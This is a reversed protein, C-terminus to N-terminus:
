PSPLIPLGQHARLATLFTEDFTERLNMAVTDTWFTNNGLRWKQPVDRLSVPYFGQPVKMRYPQQSPYLERVVVEFPLQPVPAVLRGTVTHLLAGGQRDPSVKVFNCLDHERTPDPQVGLRIGQLYSTKTTPFRAPNSCQDWLMPRTVTPLSYLLSTRAVMPQLTPQPKHRLRAELFPHSGPCEPTKTPATASPSAGPAQKTKSALLLKCRLWKKFDAENLAECEKQYETLYHRELLILRDKLRKLDQMERAFDKKDRKWMADKLFRACTRHNWIKCLDIPKCGTADEAHVNAGNEVLVKLCGLLGERAAVHLPTCGNQTQANIAAKKRLLYHICPLVMTKNDRHVVLHLPTQGNNTPQNVPFKYEEVLVQLCALKGRQAAFHIATFGKSDAPIEGTNRNLCFRLWEVNGVAAAFLEYNGIEGQDSEENLTRLRKQLRPWPQRSQFATLFRSALAGRPLHARGGDREGPKESRETSGRGGWARFQRSALEGRTAKSLAKETQRM